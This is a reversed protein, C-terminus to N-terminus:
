EIRGSTLQRNPDGGAPDTYLTRPRTTSTAYTTTTNTTSKHIAAGVATAQGARKATDLTTKTM